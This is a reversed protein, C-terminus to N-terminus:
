NSEFTKFLKNKDGFKIREGCSTTVLKVPVRDRVNTIGYIFYTGSLGDYTGIDFIKDVVNIKMRRFDNFSTPIEDVSSVVGIVKESKISCEPIDTTIIVAVMIITLISTMALFFGSISMKSLYKFM